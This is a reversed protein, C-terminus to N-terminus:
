LDSARVVVSGNDYMVAYNRSYRNHAHLVNDDVPLRGLM